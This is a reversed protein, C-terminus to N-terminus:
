TYPSANVSQSNSVVEEEQGRCTIIRMIRKLRALFIQRRIKLTRRSTEESVGKLELEVPRGEEMDAIVASTKRERIEHLSFNDTIRLVKWVRVIYSSMYIHYEVRVVRNYVIFFLLASIVVGLALGTCIQPISHYNLFYRSIPILPCFVIFANRTWRYFKWGKFPSRSDLVFHELLFWTCMASAFASHGSPFGYSPSCAGFPRPMKLIRKIIEILVQHVSIMIVFCFGRASRKVFSYIM